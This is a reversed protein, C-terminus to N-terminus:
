WWSFNKELLKWHANTRNWDVGKLLPDSIIRAERMFFNIFIAVQYDKPRPEVIAASVAEQFDCRLDGSYFEDLILLDRREFIENLALNNLDYLCPLSLGADDLDVLWVKEDFLLNAVNFDMHSKIFHYRESVDRVCDHYSAYKKQIDPTLHNKVEDYCRMILEPQPPEKHEKIYRTYARCIKHLAQMKRDKPLLGLPPATVFSEQRFLGAPTEILRAEPKEFYRYLAINMQSNHSDWEKRTTTTLVKSNEIDFFKIHGTRSIYLASAQSMKKGGSVYMYQAGSVNKIISKVIRKIGKSISASKQLYVEAFSDVHDNKSNVLVVFRENVKWIGNKMLFRYPRTRFKIKLRKKIFQLDM